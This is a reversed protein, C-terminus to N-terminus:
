YIFKMKYVYSIIMIIANVIALSIVIKQYNHKKDVVFLGVSLFFLLTTYIAPFMYFANEFQGKLLLAISRQIGCGICDIGFTQKFLCPLMYDEM